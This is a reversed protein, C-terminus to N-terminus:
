MFESGGQHYEVKKGNKKDESPTNFQIHADILKFLRKPTTSWYEEETRNLVVTYLYLYYNM